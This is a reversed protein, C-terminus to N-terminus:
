ETEKSKLEIIQRMLNLDARKTYTEQLWKNILELEKIEDDDVLGEHLVEEIDEENFNAIDKGVLGRPYVCGAYDFYFKEKGLSLSIMRSVIMVKHRENKLKVITGVPLIRM